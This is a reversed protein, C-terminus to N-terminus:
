GKVSILVLIKEQSYLHSTHLGPLMIVKMYRKEQFIPAEFEQFRLSQGALGM